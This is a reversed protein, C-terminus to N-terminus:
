LSVIVELFEEYEQLRKEGDPEIMKLLLSAIKEDSLMAQARGYYEGSIIQEVINTSVNYPLKGTIIEFCIMGLSFIDARFDAIYSDFREPALYPLVGFDDLTKLRGPKAETLLGAQVNAMGWDGLEFELKEIHNSYLFNEPKLDLHVIGSERQIKSLSLVAQDLAKLLETPSHSGSRMLTRLSGSYRPMLALLEDGIEVTKLLPVVGVESLGSWLKCGSDFSSMDSANKVTKAALQDRYPYKTESSELFNEIEPPKRSIELLSMLRVFGIGGMMVEDVQYKYAQDIIIIEEENM